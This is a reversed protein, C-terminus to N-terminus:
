PNYYYQTVSVTAKLPRCVMNRTFCLTKNVIKYSPYSATHAHTHTTEIAKKKEQISNNILYLPTVSCGAITFLKIKNKQLTLVRPYICACFVGNSAFPIRKIQSDFNNGRAGLPFHMAPFNNM